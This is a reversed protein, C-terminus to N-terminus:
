EGKAAKKATKKPTAKVPKAEGVTESRINDNTFVCIESAIKIAKYAIDKASLDTNQMMAKAAALAYNGGSGIACIGDQPEIVNGIGDLMLITSKDAVIM